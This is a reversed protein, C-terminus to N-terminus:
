VESSLMTSFIRLSKTREEELIANVKEYCIDSDAIAFDNYDSVIRDELGFLQLLSVIRTGTGKPLIDVFNKNFLISFVTAHFSDTVVYDCNQFYKLFESPTPMYALKGSKFIYLMSISIRILKRNTKKAFQAAYKELRKDNHLQYILVYGKERIYDSTVQKWELASLLLTPDLVQVADYGANQVLNVASVERVGICSYKELLSPLASQLESSLKEKGFSAAYAICKKDSPAFQLFYNEDYEVNGIKGWVQDSGTCYIDATPYELLDQTSAYVRNSEMLFEKSFKRFKYYTGAYVPTQLVKYIVRTLFNKNWKQNRRLMTDSINFGQEDTRIYNIIESEYGLKEVAKQTAYAQLISGYNAVAHRTIIGVKM